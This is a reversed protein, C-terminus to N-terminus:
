PTKGSFASSAKKRLRAALAGAWVALWERRASRWLQETRWLEGEHVPRSGYLAQEYLATAQALATSLIRRGALRTASAASFEEPTTTATGRLGAWALARRMRWYLRAAPETRPQPRARWLTWGLALLALAMLALVVWNFQPQSVPPAFTPTPANTPAGQYNLAARNSTPEFEVWGAGAVYVEVWAHASDNSVRYAGREFDFSGTAYGAAVRAPVDLTRLLVAMASASYNCNGGPADFLFYDVADQEPAHTPVDLLYPYNARLYNQIRAAKDLPTPADGAIRQALDRVRQPLSAPLQRYESLAPSADDTATETAMWIADRQTAWSTVTYVSSDGRLVADTALPLVIVEVGAGAAVPANVAFLEPGHAAVIEFQQQLIYRGPPPGAQPDLTAGDQANVPEWGQGTYTAFVQSRWYHTPPRVSAGPVDPPTPAPDSVTVWMVTEDGRPVPSRILSLDPTRATVALGPARPPNVGGFLRTATDAARSQTTRFLDSLLRWGSPTGLFPSAVVFLMIVTVAAAANILWDAEIYEAYSLRRREWDHRARRYASQGLLLLMPALFMAYEAAPRDALTNNLAVGIVLPALGALAQRRRILAWALWLGMSWLLSAMLAIFLGAERVTGGFAIANAWSGAQDFLTLARVHMGWLLDSWASQGVQEFGPLVRGAAEAVIAAGMVVSYAFATRPRFRSAALLAGFLAGLWLATTYRSGESVWRAATLSSSAVVLLLGCLSLPLWTDRALTRLRMLRHAPPRANLATM